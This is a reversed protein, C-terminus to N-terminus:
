HPIQPGRPRVALIRPPHAKAWSASSRRDRPSWAAALSPPVPGATELTGRPDRGHQTVVPWASSRCGRPCTPTQHSSRPRHEAHRRRPCGGLMRPPWGSSEQGLWTKAPSAAGPDRSPLEWCGMNSLGLLGAGVGVRSGRSRLGGPRGGARAEEEARNAGRGLRTGSCPGSAASPRGPAHAGSALKRCQRMALASVFRPGPQLAGGDLCCADGGDGGTKAQFSRDQLARAGPGSWIPTCDQGRQGAEWVM